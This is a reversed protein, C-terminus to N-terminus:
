RALFERVNYDSILDSKSGYSYVRAGSKSFPDSLYMKWVEDITKGELETNEFIEAWAKDWEAAVYKRGCWTSLFSYIIDKENWSFRYDLWVLFRNSNERATEYTCTALTWNSDNYYGGNYAYVYRCYDAFREVYDRDVYNNVDDFANNIVHGLEHTFFDFDTKNNSLHADDITISNGSAYASCNKIVGNIKLKVDQNIFVKVETPCHTASSFRAYMKPYCNWFLDFLTNLQDASTRQEWNALNFDLKFEVGNVTKTQILSSNSFTITVGDTKIMKENLVLKGTKDVFCWQDSDTNYIWKSKEMAGTSDVHCMANINENYLWKNADMVGNAGLHYWNMYTYDYKWQDKLLSGDDNYYYWIGNQYDWDASASNTPLAVAASATIALTMISALVRNKM